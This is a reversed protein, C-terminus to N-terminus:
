PCRATGKKGSGNRDRGHNRIRIPWGGDGCAQDGMPKGHRTLVNTEPVNGWLIFRRRGSVDEWADAKTTKQVYFRGTWRDMLQQPRETAGLATSTRMGLYKKRSRGGASLWCTKLCRAGGGRGARLLSRSTKATEKKERATQALWRTPSRPASIHPGASDDSCVPDEMREKSRRRRIEGAEFCEPERQHGSLGRIQHHRGFDAGLAAV